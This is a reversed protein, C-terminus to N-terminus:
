GPVAISVSECVHGRAQELPKGRQVGADEVIDFPM